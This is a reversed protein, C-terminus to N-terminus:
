VRERGSARGIQTVQMLGEKKNPPAGTSDLKGARCNTVSIKDGVQFSPSAFAGAKSIRIINDSDRILIYDNNVAAVVGTIAVDSGENVGVQWATTNSGDLLYETGPTAGSSVNTIATAIGGAFSTHGHIPDLQMMTPPPLLTVTVTYTQTTADTSVVYDVPSSFDNQTVMTEQEIGNVKVSAATTTFGCVIGVANAREITISINTGVITAKLGNVYFDVFSAGTPIFTHIGANDDETTATGTTVPISRYDANNWTQAGTLYPRKIMRVDKGFDLSSIPNGIIDIKNSNKLLEIADNGNFNIFSYTAGALLVKWGNADGVTTSLAAVANLTAATYADNVLVICKGAALTGSLAYPTTSSGGNTYSRISYSSLDVDTSGINAIEIYKNNGIAGEYYESLIIPEPEVVSVSYTKTSSDEATVLYDVSSGFNNPTTGSVQPTASVTAVAMADSLTFTAILGDRNIAGPISVTITPNPLADENIVGVFNTTGDSLSYATIDKASSPPTVTVEVTYTATSGDEATVTYVKATSFNNATVGSTQATGSIAVTASASATFTAILATVNTGAPLPGVTWKQQLANWSGVYDQTLVASNKSQEFRFSLLAKESSKVVEPTTPQPCGALVLATAILVCCAILKKM